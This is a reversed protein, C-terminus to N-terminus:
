GNKGLIGPNETRGCLDKRILKEVKKDLSERAKESSKSEIYYTVKGITRPTTTLIPSGM